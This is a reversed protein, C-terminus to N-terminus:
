GKGFLEDLGREEVLHNRNEKRKHYWAHCVQCLFILNIIENILRHGPRESKYIIHHPPDFPEHTAGCRECKLQGEEEIIREVLAIWSEKYRKRRDASRQKQTRM